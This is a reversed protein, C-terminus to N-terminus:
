PQLDTPRSTELVTGPATTLDNLQPMVPVAPKPAFKAEMFARAAEVYREVPLVFSALAAGSAFGLIVVMLVVFGKRVKPKPKAGLPLSTVQPSPAAAAETSSVPSASPVAPAAPMSPPLLPTAAAPLPMAAPLAAAPAQLLSSFPSAGTPAEVEGFPNVPGNGSGPFSPETGSTFRPAPATAMLTAPAEDSPAAPANNWPLQEPRGLGGFLGGDAPASAGWSSAVTSASAAPAPFGAQLDEAPATSAISPIKEATFSAFPSAAKGQDASGTGFPSGFAAAFTDDPEPAAVAPIPAPSPRGFASEWSPVKPETAPLPSPIFGDPLASPPADDPGPVAPIPAILPAPAAVAPRVPPGWPTPGAFGAAPESEPLPQASQLFSGFGSPITATSDFGSSPIEQAVIPASEPLAAPASALPAVFGGTEYLSDLDPPDNAVFDGATPDSGTELLTPSPEPAFDSVSEEAFNTAPPVFGSSAPPEDAESIPAVTESLYAPEPAVAPETESTVAPEPEPTVVPEPEPTVVPEPEPTVVPEPETWSSPEEMSPGPSLTMGTPASSEPLAVEEEKVSETPVRVGLIPFIRVSGDRVSEAAVIPTHCWVCAGEIGLHRRKLVLAGECEPCALHLIAEPDESVPAATENEPAVSEELLSTESVASEPDPEPAEESPLSIGSPAGGDSGRTVSFSLSLGRAPESSVMSFGLDDPLSSLVVGEDEVTKRGGQLAAAEENREGLGLSNLFHSKTADSSEGDSSNLTIDYDPEM